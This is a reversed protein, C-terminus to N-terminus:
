QQTPSVRGIDGADLYSRTVAKHTLHDGLGRMRMSWQIRDRYAIRNCGDVVLKPLHLREKGM